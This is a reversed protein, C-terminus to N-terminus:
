TRSKEKYTYYFTEPDFKAYKDMFAMMSKKDNRNFTKLLMYSNDLITDDKVLVDESSREALPHIALEPVSKVNVADEAFQFYKRYKANEPKFLKKKMSVSDSWVNGIYGVVSPYKKIITDSFCADYDNLPKPMCGQKATSCRKLFFRKRTKDRRTYVSPKLLYFVKIDKTLIYVYLNKDYDQELYKEFTLEAVFPNPYFFVKFQPTICRTTENIPVGRLDNKNDKTIRFLLTGKPITKVLLKTNRYSVSEM